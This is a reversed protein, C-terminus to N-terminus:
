FIPYIVHHVFNILPPPCARTCYTVYYQFVFQQLTMNQIYKLDFSESLAPVWHEPSTRIDYLDIPSRVIRDVGQQNNHVVKDGEQAGHAANKNVAHLLQQEDIHDEGKEYDATEVNVRRRNNFLNM